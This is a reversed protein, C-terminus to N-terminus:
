KSLMSLVFHIWVVLAFLSVYHSCALHMGETGKDDKVITM